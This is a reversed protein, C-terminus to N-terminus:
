VGRWCCCCCCVCVCVCMYIYIHIYTHIYRRVCVRVITLVDDAAELLTNPRIPIYGRLDLPTGDVMRKFYAFKMESLDNGILPTFYRLQPGRLAGSLKAGEKLMWVGQGPYVFRDGEAEDEGDSPPEDPNEQAHAQADLLASAWRAASTTDDATLLWTRTPCDVQITEHNLTIRTLQTIQFQGKLKAVSLDENDYYKVSSGECVFYRRRAQGFGDAAKTLWGKMAETALVEERDLVRSMIAVQWQMCVAADDATLLFTRQPNRIHLERGEATAATTPLLEITGKKTAKTEDEFYLIERKNLQFYRRRAKGVKEPAKLFWACIREPGGVSVLSKRSSAL